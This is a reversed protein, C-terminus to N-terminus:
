GNLTKENFCNALSDYFISPITTKAKTKIDIFYLVVKGVTLLNGQESYIEQNFEIKHDTPLEKLIVKITILDDYHAPRLYKINLEVVPMVVGMAEIDRYSFGLSRVAEGRAAELYAAYNGHYVCNMQDTEAYRVGIKSEHIFM